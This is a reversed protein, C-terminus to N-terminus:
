PREGLKARVDAPLTPFVAQADRIWELESVSVSMTLKGGTVAHWALVRVAWLARADAELRDYADHVADDVCPQAGIIMLAEKTNM